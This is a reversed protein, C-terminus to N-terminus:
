SNQSMKEYINIAEEVVGLCADLSNKKSFSIVCQEQVKHIDEIILQMTFKRQSNFGMLPNVQVVIKNGPILGRKRINNRYVVLTDRVTQRTESVDENVSTGFLTMKGEVSCVMYKREWVTRSLCSCVIAQHREVEVWEAITRQKGGLESHYNRSAYLPNKVSHRQGGKHAMGSGIGALETSGRLIRQTNDDNAVDLPRKGDTSRRHSVRAGHSILVSCAETRGAESALHLPTNGSVTQVNPFSGEELLLQIVDASEIVAARHLPTQCLHDYSAPNNLLVAKEVITSNLMEKVLKINGNDVAKYFDKTFRIRRRARYKMNKV